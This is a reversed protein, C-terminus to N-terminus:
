WNGLEDLLPSFSDVVHRENHIVDLRFQGPQFSGAELEDIFAGAETSIAMANREQM